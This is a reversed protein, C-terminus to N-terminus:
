SRFPSRRDREGIADVDASSLAPQKILSWYTTRGCTGCVVGKEGPTVDTSKCHVCLKGGELLALQKRGRAKHIANLAAFFLVSGLLILGKM